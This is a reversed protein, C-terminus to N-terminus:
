VWHDHENAVIRYADAGRETREQEGGQRENGEKPVATGSRVAAHYSPRRHTAPVPEEALAAAHSRSTSGTDAGDVGIRQPAAPVTARWCLAPPTQSAAVGCPAYRRIAPWCLARRKSERRPLASSTAALENAISIISKTQAVGACGGLHLRVGTGPHWHTQTSGGALLWRVGKRSAAFAGAHLLAVSDQNLRAALEAQCHWPRRWCLAAVASRELTAKGSSIFRTVCGSSRPAKVGSCYSRMPRENRSRSAPVSASSPCTTCVAAPWCVALIEARPHCVRAVVSVRHRRDGPLQTTGAKAGM